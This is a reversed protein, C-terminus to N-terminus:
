KKIDSLVQRFKDNSLLTKFSEDKEPDPMKEKSPLNNRYEFAKKLYVISSDLNNSEGYFSAISYYFTPYTSDRMLAKTYLEGIKSRDGTERYCIELAGILAPYASMDMTPQIDEAALAKSFWWKAAKYDQKFILTQTGVVFCNESSLYAKRPEKPIFHVGSVIENFYNQDSNQFSTKSIHLDIWFGDQVFHANINKQNLKIGQFEPVTYEVTAYTPYTVKEVDIPKGYAPNPKSWFYERCGKPNDCNVAPEVIISLTIPPNDSTLLFYGAIGHPNVKEEKVKFNLDPFQMKWSAGDITLFVIGKEQVLYTPTCSILIFSFLVFVIYILKM